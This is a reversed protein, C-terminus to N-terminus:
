HETCPFANFYHLYLVYRLQNSVFPQDVSAIKLRTAELVNNHKRPEYLIFLGRAQRAYYIEETDISRSCLSPWLKAHTCLQM